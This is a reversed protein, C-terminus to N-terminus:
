DLGNNFVNTIMWYNDDLGQEGSAGENLRSIFGVSIFDSTYKAQCSMASM